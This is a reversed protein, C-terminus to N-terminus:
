FTGISPTINYESRALVVVGLYVVLKKSIVRACVVCVRVCVCCMCAHVCACM